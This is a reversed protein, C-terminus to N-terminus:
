PKRDWVEVIAKGNSFKVKIWNGDKFKTVDLQYALPIRAVSCGSVTGQDSERNLIALPATNFDRLNLLVYPGVTSGLGRPYIFIKNKISQGNLPHDKEVIKGNTHDVFGLLTIPQDTVIAEGEVSYNGFSRLGIGEYSRSYNKM